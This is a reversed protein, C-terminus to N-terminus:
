MLVAPMRTRRAQNVAIKSNATKAALQFSNSMMGCDKKGCSSLPVMKQSKCNAGPEVKDRVSCAMLLASSFSM